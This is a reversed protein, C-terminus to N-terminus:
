TRRSSAFQFLDSCCMPITWISPSSIFTPKGSKRAAVSAGIRAEVVKAAVGDEPRGRLTARIRDRRVGPGMVNAVSVITHGPKVEVAKEPIGDAAYFVLHAALSACSVVKPFKDYHYFYGQGKVIYM